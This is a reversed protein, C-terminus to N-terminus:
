IQRKQQAAGVAGRRLRRRNANADRRRACRLHRWALAALTIVCAGKWLLLWWPKYWAGTQTEVLDSFGFLVLTVGALLVVGLGSRRRWGAVLFAAGVVIWFGAELQNARVFFPDFEAFVTTATLM